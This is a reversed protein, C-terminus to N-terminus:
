FKTPRNIPFPIKDIFIQLKFLCVNSLTQSKWRFDIIEELQMIDFDIFDLTKGADTKLVMVTAILM